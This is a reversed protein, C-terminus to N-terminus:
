EAKITENGIKVGRLVSNCRRDLSVIGSFNERWREEEVRRAEEPNTFFNEIGYSIRVRDGSVSEVKGKICRGAKVDPKEGSAGVARRYAGEKQLIVYVTDGKEAEYGMTDASLSNISYELVAYQGRFVDWPDVPEIVEIRVEEGTAITTYQYVFLGGIIIAPVGLLVILRPDVEM